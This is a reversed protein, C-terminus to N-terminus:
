LSGCAGSGGGRAVDARRGVRGPRSRTVTGGSRPPRLSFLVWAEWCSLQSLFTRSASPLPRLPDTCVRTCLVGCPSRMAAPPLAPPPWPTTGGGGGLRGAWWRWWWPPLPRAVPEAQVRAAALRRLVAVCPPDAAEGAAGTSQSGGCKRDSGRGGRVLLEWQTGWLLRRRSVHEEGGSM